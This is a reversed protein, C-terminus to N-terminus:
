GEAETPSQRKEMAQHEWYKLCQSLLDTPPLYEYLPGSLGKGVEVRELLGMDIMKNVIGNEPKGHATISGRMVARNFYNVMTKTVPTKGTSLNLIPHKM